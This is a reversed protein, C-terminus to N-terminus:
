EARTTLFVHERGPRDPADRVEDVVYGCVALQAEVESRDRFRLTSESTLVVGDSVFRFTGRFRVLPLRVDLLDFWSEVPGVGPIVTTSATAARNWEEWQRRAPDRTEFVLRGRPRLAQRVGRLTGEWETPDVIAQAVNGTMVALDVQLEPLRAATGHAWRVREAGPKARAVDLSAVAPDVGTVELGRDTLLLAFTGTGCGVDLARRAGLEEVLAAYVQLDSRDSELADYIAALRQHEFAADAM